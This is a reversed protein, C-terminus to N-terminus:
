HKKQELKEILKLLAERNKSEHYFKPLKELLTFHTRDKHERLGAAIYQKLYLLHKLNYAWFIDSKFPTELWLDTEFYEHAATDVWGGKIKASVSKNYGCHVCFLLQNKTEDNRKAIAKRSCSPCVVWVEEYFDSLRTNDDQFRHSDM